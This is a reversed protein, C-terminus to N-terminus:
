SWLLGELWSRLEVLLEDVKANHEDAGCRCEDGSDDDCCGDEAKPCSYFCDECYYHSKYALKALAEVCEIVGGNNAM